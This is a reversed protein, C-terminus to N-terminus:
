RRARPVGAGDLLAALRERATVDAWEIRLVTWGLRRLRAERRRERWLKEVPDGGNFRPDAYKIRGDFELLVGADPWAFDPRMEGQEDRVPLQLVPPAFGLEHIVARAYSEAFSESLDTSFDVARRLSSSGARPGLRPLESLLDELSVAKPNKRWRAWDISAVAEPFSAHRSVDLVTRALTTVPVGDVVVSKPAEAGSTQRVVGPESRGGGRYRDMVVVDVPPASAIPM